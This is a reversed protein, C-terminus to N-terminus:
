EGTLEEKDTKNENADPAAFQSSKLTRLALWYTL